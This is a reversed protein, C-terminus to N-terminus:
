FTLFASRHFSDIDLYPLRECGIDRLQSLHNLGRYAAQLGLV